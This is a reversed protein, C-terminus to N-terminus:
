LKLVDSKIGESTAEITISSKKSETRLLISATGAEANIPNGGILKASNEDSIIKFTVKNEAGPIVTGNIDVIKAYMFVVDPTNESIPMNQFDYSLEIKHPEGPTRIKYTAVEKGNIYGIAKLEGNEFKELDFIFPPHKLEDSITNIEPKKREVLIDNLYLEVEETNSFIQIRKTSEPTWYSAIFVMPRSFENEGPTKQSQYFYNSFKPIRFIDSIGSSELDDSYGRNYDFMLWNAQGISQKGKLNSNFAEQFNLSQQILGREGTSRLQRSSREEEKLNSFAKQDFGANQAYYEWDGYEAIFIPRDSKDYNNWYHPPKSHQRAPTFLDFAPNDIWGASYTDEYPLEAKLIENAEMIFDETMRSENLSNEWFVVGPHNRDRRVMDKIDQLANEVFEGEEFFQWGPIADMVLLGLEDCAKLFAEAQPYHSLRVFNFGAQKIKLADRYQAEDSLAYGIYPYEQHRNTGNLFLKEGNLYFATDTLHIKRIGLTIEESDMPNGQETIKLELQYLNPFDPSWLDPTKVQIKTEESIDKGTEIQFQQSSEFVQVNNRDKLLVQLELMREKDSDNKINTKVFGSAFERSVSDFKILVGGGNVKDAEVANTIYVENTEVLYVNRYIGGYMNFDLDPIAKGPPITPNDLNSVEVLIKNESNEKLYGSADVTFPLYGGKHIKVLSDNLFVKAEQMVGEFYFSMKKDKLSGIQFDKKYIAKGQWQDNVVLPEIKVSHPINVKEWGQVEPLSDNMRQFLWNSGFNEVIRKDKVSATEDPQNGSSCSFTIISLFFAAVAVRIISNM